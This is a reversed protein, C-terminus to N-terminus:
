ARVHRIREELGSATFHTIAVGSGDPSPAFGTFGVIDAHRAAVRLVRDGNGGVLIPVPDLPVPWCRHADLRYHDGDF